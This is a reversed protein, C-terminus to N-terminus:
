LALRLPLELEAANAYELIQEGEVLEMVLYPVGGEGIGGDLLQAIGAHKLNALIQREQVFRQVYGADLLWPNLLKLAGQAEYAGDVREARYVTGMGGHGLTGVIRWAGFQRGTPDAGPVAGAEHAARQVASTMESTRGLAALLDRVEAALGPDDTCSERLYAEATDSPMGQAAEFLVQLREWRRADM